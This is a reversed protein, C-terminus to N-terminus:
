GLVKLNNLASITLAIRVSDRSVSSPTIIKHGGAIMRAKRKFNEGMKIDFIVHCDVYQFGPPIYIKNGEFIEFAIHVSKM